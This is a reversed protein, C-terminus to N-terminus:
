DPSPMAKLRLTPEYRSLSNRVRQPITSSNPRRRMAIASPLLAFQFTFHVESPRLGPSVWQWKLGCEKPWLFDYDLRVGLPLSIQEMEPQFSESDSSFSLPQLSPQPVAGTQLLFTHVSKSVTEVQGPLFPHAIPVLTGWPSADVLVSSLSSASLLLGGQLNVWHPIKFGRCRLPRWIKKGGQCKGPLGLLAMSWKCPQQAWKEQWM